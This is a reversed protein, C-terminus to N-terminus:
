ISKAVSIRFSVKNPKGILTCTTANDISRKKNSDDKSTIAIRCDGRIHWSHSLKYEVGLGCTPYFSGFAVSINKNARTILAKGGVKSFGFTAYPMIGNEPFQYGLRVDMNLGMSLTHEISLDGETKKRKPLRGFLELEIGVYFRNHFNTGFGTLISVDYQNSSSKLNRTEEHDVLAKISHSIRSIGIGLGYYAGSIYNYPDSLKQFDDNEFSANVKEEHAAAELGPTANDGYACFVFLNVV